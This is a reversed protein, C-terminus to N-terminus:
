GTTWNMRRSLTAFKPVPRRRHSPASPPPPLRSNGLDPVPHLIGHPAPSTTLEPM